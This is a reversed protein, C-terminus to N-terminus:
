SHHTPTTHTEITHTYTYQHTTHHAPTHPYQKTKLRFVAYSIRMLQQLESTHEESRDHRRHQRRDREVRDGGLQHGVVAEARRVQVAARQDAQHQGAHDHPDGLVVGAGLVLRHLVDRRCRGLDSSCVDSSWDSIRM